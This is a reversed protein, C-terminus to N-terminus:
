EKKWSSANKSHGMKNFHMIPMQLSSMRRSWRFARVCMLHRLLVRQVHNVGRFKEIEWTDTRRRTHAPLCKAQQRSCRRAAGYACSTEIRSSTSVFFFFLFIHSSKAPTLCRWWETHRLDYYQRFVNIKRKPSTAESRMHYWLRDVLMMTVYVRATCQVCVICVYNAQQKKKSAFRVFSALRILFRLPWMKHARRDTGTTKSVQRLLFYVHWRVFCRGFSCFFFWCFFFCRFRFFRFSRIVDVSESQSHLAFSQKTQQAFAVLVLSHSFSALTVDSM